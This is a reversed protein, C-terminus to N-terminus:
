DLSRVLCEFIRYFKTFFLGIKQCTFIRAELFVFKQLGNKHRMKVIIYNVKGQESFSLLTERINLTAQAM